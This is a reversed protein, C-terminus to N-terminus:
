TTTYLALVWNDPMSLTGKKGKITLWATSCQVASQEDNPGAYSPIVAVNNDSITFTIPTVAARAVQLMLGRYGAVDTTSSGEMKMSSLTEFPRRFSTKSQGTAIDTGDGRVSLTAIANAASSGWATAIDSVTTISAGSGDTALQVTIDLESVTIGFTKNNGGTLLTLSPVTTQNNDVATGTLMFAKNAVTPFVNLGLSGYGTISTGTNGLILSTLAMGNISGTISTGTDRLYLSTLAMGNISGTISTGTGSLYLYTLAMGNISGTVSTGTNVLNLYTLAMGLISITLPTTSDIRLYNINEVVPFIITGSTAGYIYVTTTANATLDLSTLDAGGSSTRLYTGGTSTITTNTNVRVTFSKETTTSCAWVSRIVYNNSAVASNTSGSKIGIAKVTKGSVVSFAGTYLTKTADPTSGDTTYYISAGSTACSITVSQGTDYTGADPSISPTAVITEGASGQQMIALGMGMRLGMM